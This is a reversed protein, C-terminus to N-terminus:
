MFVLDLGDIKRSEDLASMFDHYSEKDLIGFFDILSKKPKNTTDETAVTIVAKQNIPLKVPAMPVFVNGDFYAQIAEM